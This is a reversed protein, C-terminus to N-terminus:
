EGAIMANEAMITQFLNELKALIYKDQQLSARLASRKSYADYLKCGVFVGGMAVIGAISHRAANTIFVWGKEWTSVINRAVVGDFMIHLGRAVCFALAAKKASSVQKDICSLEYEDEEIKVKVVEILMDVNDRIQPIESFDIEQRNIRALYDCAEQENHLLPFMNATSLLGVIVLLGGLRKNM